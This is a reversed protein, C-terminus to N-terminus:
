PEDEAEDSGILPSLAERLDRLALRMHSEVTKITVDLAEAAERYTCDQLFCLEFVARRREPLDAIAADIRERLEANIANREPSNERGAIREVESDTTTRSSDRLHNLARTYGIRFLYARLSQDPNIEARHEWIYLFATQVLDEAADADIGRSCLYGFLRGHHRDFFVRFAERDGNKIRRALLTSDPTDDQSLALVLILTLSLPPM